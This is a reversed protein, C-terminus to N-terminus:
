KLMNTFRDGNFFEAFFDGDIFTVQFLTELFHIASRNKIEVLALAHLMGTIQEVFFAETDGFNGHHEAIRRDGM